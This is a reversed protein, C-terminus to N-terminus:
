LKALASDIAAIEATLAAKRTANAADAESVITQDTTKLDSLRASVFARLEAITTNAVAVLAAPESLGRTRAEEWLVRGIVAAEQTTLVIRPM